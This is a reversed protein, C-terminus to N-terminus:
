CWTEWLKWSQNAFHCLDKQHTKTSVDSVDVLIAAVNDDICPVSVKGHDLVELEISIWEVGDTVETRVSEVDVVVDVIVETDDVSDEECGERCDSSGEVRECGDDDVEKGLESIGDGGGVNGDECCNEDDGVGESAGDGDDIWEGGGVGGGDGGGEDSDGGDEEDGEDVEEDTKGGLKGVEGDNGGDCGIFAEGLVENREGEGEGSGEEDCTRVEDDFGPDVIVIPVVSIKGEESTDM